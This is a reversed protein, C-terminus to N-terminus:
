HKRPMSPLRASHHDKIHCWRPAFERGVMYSASVSAFGKAIEVREFNFDCFIKFLSKKDNFM